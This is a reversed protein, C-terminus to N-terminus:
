SNPTHQPDSASQTTPKTKPKPKYINELQQIEKQLQKIEKELQQLQQNLTQKKQTM